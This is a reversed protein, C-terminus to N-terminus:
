FHAKIMGFPWSKLGNLIIWSAKAILMSAMLTMLILFKPTCFGDLPGNSDIFQVPGSKLLKAMGFTATFVSM